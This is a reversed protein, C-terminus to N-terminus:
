TPRPTTTRGRRRTRRCRAPGGRRSTRRRCDSGRSTAARPSRRGARAARSSPLRDKEARHEDRTDSRISRGVLEQHYAFAVEQVAREALLDCHAVETVRPEVSCEREVDLCVESVEEGDFLSLDVSRHGCRPDLGVTAAPPEHARLDLSTGLDPETFGNDIVVARCRERERDLRGLVPLQGHLDGGDEVALSDFGTM